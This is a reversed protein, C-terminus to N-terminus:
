ISQEKSRFYYGGIGGPASPDLNDKFLGDMFDLNALGEEGRGLNRLCDVILSQGPFNSAIGM